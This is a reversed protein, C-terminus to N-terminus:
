AKARAGASSTGTTDATGEATGSDVGGGPAAQGSAADAEATTSPNSGGQSPAAGADSYAEKLDAVTMAEADEQSAGRGVAYDVWEAKSANGAPPNNGYKAAWEERYAASAGWTSSPDSNLEAM